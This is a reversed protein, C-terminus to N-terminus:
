PNSGVTSSEFTDGRTLYSWFDQAHTPQETLSIAVESRLPNLDADFMKWTVKVSDVVCRIRFYEGWVFLVHPPAAYVSITFESPSFIRPKTLARLFNMARVLELSGNPRIKKLAREPAELAMPALAVAGPGSTTPYALDDILQKRRQTTVGQPPLAYRTMAEDRADFELKFSIQRDGGATWHKRPHSRGPISHSGFSASHNDEWEPPNFPFSLAIGTHSGTIAIIQGRRVGNM